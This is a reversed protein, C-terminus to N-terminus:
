CVLPLQNLLFIVPKVVNIEELKLNCFQEIRLITAECGCSLKMFLDSSFMLIDTFNFM